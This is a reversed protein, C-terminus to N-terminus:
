NTIVEVIEWLQNAYAGDNLQVLQLNDTLSNIPVSLSLGSNRNVIRYESNSIPILKWEQSKSTAQNTWQNLRTGQKKGGWRLDLVQGSHVAKLQYYGGQTPIIKWKQHALNFLVAQVIAAGETTSAKLVSLAKRNHKAIIQYTKSSDFVSSSLSFANTTTSKPDYVQYVLVKGQSRGAVNYPNYAAAQKEGVGLFGESGAAGYNDNFAQLFNDRHVWNPGNRYFMEYITKENALLLVADNPTDAMSLGINESNREWANALITRGQIRQSASSHTTNCSTGYVPDGCHDLKNQSVLWNAHTQATESLHTEAAQFPKVTLVGTGYNINNRCVREANVLLLARLALSRSSFDAPLTMNGLSGVALGRNTEEFRRGINFNDAISLSFNYDPANATLVPPKQAFLSSFHAFLFTAIIFFSKM